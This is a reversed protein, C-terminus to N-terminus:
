STSESIEGDRGWSHQPQFHGGDHRAAGGEGVGIVTKAKQKHRFVVTTNRCRMEKDTWGQTWLQRGPNSSYYIYGYDRM